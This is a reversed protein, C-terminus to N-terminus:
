GKTSGAGSNGGKGATGAAGSIASRSGSSDSAGASGTSDSPSSGSLASEGSGADSGGSAASDGKADGPGPVPDSTASRSRASSRRDVKAWGSGKFVIAPPAFARRMPAGCAACPQAADDHVGRLVEAKHGCNPCVYDYIPM